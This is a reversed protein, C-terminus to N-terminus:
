KRTVALLRVPGLLGSDLLPTDKTYHQFTIFTYKKETAPQRDGILRNRWLNTVKVEIQNRGPKLAATVDAEFLPKWIIGVPKGNVAVEALERVDGLDLVLKAGPKLWAAPVDIDKTYSATGSFYKVGENSNETWSAL